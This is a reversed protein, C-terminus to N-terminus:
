KNSQSCLILVALAAILLVTAITYFPQRLSGREPWEGAPWSGTWILIAAIFLLVIICLYKALFFDFRADYRLLEDLRARRSKTIVERSDAIFNM